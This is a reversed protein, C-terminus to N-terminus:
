GRTGRLVVTHALKDHVTQNRADWLPWLLDVLILLSGFAVRGALLSAGQFIATRGAARGVTVHGLDSERAIYVGLLRMFPTAQWRSSLSVTAYAFALLTELSTYFVLKSGLPVLTRHGNVTHFQWVNLPTHHGTASAIVGAVVSIVLGDLLFAGARRGWSAYPHVPEVAGDESGGAPFSPLPTTESV